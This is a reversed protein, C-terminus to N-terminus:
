GHGGTSKLLLDDDRGTRNEMKVWGKANSSFDKNTDHHTYDLSNDRIEQSVSSNHKSFKVTRGKPWLASKDVDHFETVSISKTEFIKRGDDGFKKPV